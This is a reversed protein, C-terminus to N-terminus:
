YVGQKRLGDLYAIEIAVADNYDSFYVPGISNGADMYFRHQVHKSIEHGIVKAIKPNDEGELCFVERGGWGELLKEITVVGRGAAQLVDIKWAQHDEDWVIESARIIKADGFQRLDLGQGPKAQLGQMTGEVTITIVQKRVQSEERSPVPQHPHSHLALVRMGM